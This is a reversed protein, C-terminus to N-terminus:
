LCLATGVPPPGDMARLVRVDSAPCTAETARLATPSGAAGAGSGSGGAVLAGASFFALDAGRLRDAPAFADAAVVAGAADGAFALVGAFAVDGAFALVGAFAAGVFAAAVFVAGRLAAALFLAVVGATGAVDAFAVGTFVDAAFM